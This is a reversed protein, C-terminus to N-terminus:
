DGLLLDRIAACLLPGTEPGLSNTEGYQPKSRGYCFPAAVDWQSKPLIYGIEDNALGFIMRKGSRIAPLIAPEKAAGPYDAGPEQPEQIAGTALEPYLEGPVAVVTLQGIRLLSVETEIAMRGIVIRGPVHTARAPTGEWRFARRDIVGLLFLTTYGLNDQPLYLKRSRVQFPSMQIPEACCIALEALQAVLEGNRHTKEFSNEPLLRGQPDRVELRLSTMMGGIAGSFFVAPCAFRKELYSRTVGPFDSSILTNQSGLTEPHCNWQVVIGIPEGSPRQFRLTRLEPDKAVPERLDAL